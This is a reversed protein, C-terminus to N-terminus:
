SPIGAGFWVPPSSCVYVDESNFQRDCSAQMYEVGVIDSSLTRGDWDQRVTLINLDQDFTFEVTAGQPAAESQCYGRFIGTQDWPNGTTCNFVCGSTISTLTFSPGTDHNPTATSGPALSGAPMRYTRSWNDLRWSHYKSASLSSTVTCTSTTNVPAPLSRTGIDYVPVTGATTRQLVCYSPGDDNKCELDLSVSGTALGESSTAAYVDAWTSRTEHFQLRPFCM